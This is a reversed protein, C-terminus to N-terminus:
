NGKFRAPRKDRFAAIGEKIDEGMMIARYLQRELVLAGALPMEQGEYLALKIAGVSGPAASFKRALATAAGADPHLEDLLGLEFARAPDLTEGLSKSSM